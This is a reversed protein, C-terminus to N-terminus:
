NLSCFSCRFIRGERPSKLAGLEGGKVFDYGEINDTAATSTTGGKIIAKGLIILGGWQGRCWPMTSSDIAGAAVATGAM